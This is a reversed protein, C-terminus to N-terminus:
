AEWEAVRQLPETGHAQLRLVRLGDSEMALLADWRERYWDRIWAGWEVLLIEHPRPEPLDLADLEDAQNIRYLDAHYVTISSAEYMHVLDFTPSKVRGPVGWMPLVAQILSTKGVGLDGEFLVVTPPRWLRACAEAVRGMEYLNHWRFTITSKDKSSM